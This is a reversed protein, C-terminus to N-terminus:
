PVILPVDIADGATAPATATSRWAAGDSFGSCTSSVSCFEAWRKLKPAFYWGSGCSGAVGDLKSLPWPRSSTTLAMLRAVPRGIVSGPPAATAADATHAGPAGM